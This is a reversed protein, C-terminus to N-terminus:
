SDPGFNLVRIARKDKIRLAFREIVRLTYNIGGDVCETTMDQVM